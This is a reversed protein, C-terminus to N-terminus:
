DEPGRGTGSRSPQAYGPYRGTGTWTCPSPTWPWPSAEGKTIKKLAAMLWQSIVGKDYDSVIIGDLEEANREIGQILLEQVRPSLPHNKEKDVRVVQQQHAIVRTKVATPRSDDSISVTPTKVGQGKLQRLLRKGMGDPGIVGALVVQAGLGLLNNVVNAAGGLLYSEEKVKM